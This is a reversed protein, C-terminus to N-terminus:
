IDNLRDTLYQNFTRDDISPYWREDFYPNPKEIYDNYLLEEFIQKPDDNYNEYYEDLIEESLNYDELDIQIKIKDSTFEFVNGLEGLAEKITDRLHEVYSDREAGNVASSIANRIDYNDDYEEIKDELSMDEDIEIGEKEIWNHIMEEIKKENGADVNYELASKWDVDYNDWMDWVDDSMITEYFSVRVSYDNGAPTKKKYTRYVRDGDLYNGVSTPELELVFRTQPPEVEIIGMEGLKRQLGRTSFLEPRNNYIERITQDPLDTLKFDQNSAYESGFGQILYDGAERVNFLPEIYKHYEEKPKSNKKGKLQYLIGDTGISATLHSQNIKMDTGQLKKDSRLSYLFGYTSRGCHGMRECEEESNKVNLDAWYYGEGNEDRFDILIPHTEVYNIAGDGVGLSDHWVKADRIVDAISTEKDYHSTIKNDLGGVSKPARNYDMISVLVPIIRQPHLENIKKKAANLVDTKTMGYNILNINNDYYMKLYKNAIWVSTKGCVRDFTEALEPKMGIKETLIKLREEQKDETLLGFKDNYEKLINIVDRDSYNENISKSKLKINLIKRLYFNFQNKDLDIIPYFWTPLDIQKKDLLTYFVEEVIYDDGDNDSNIEAQQFAQLVIDSNVNVLNTLDGEITITQNRENDEIYGYHQLTKFLKDKYKERASEIMTQTTADEIAFSIDEYVDYSEIMDNIYGEVFEKNEKKALIKLLEIIKNKNEDSIYETAEFWPIFDLIDIIFDNFNSYENNLLVKSLYVDIKTNYYINSNQQYVKTDNKILFHVRDYDFNIYYETDFDFTTTVGLEQLKKYDNVGSYLDPREKYLELFENDTLDTLKFDNGTAYEKGFYNIFYEGDDLKLQLLPIIYKHYESKPKSNNKGKLQFLIGDGDIAATLHSDNITYKKGPAYKYSRLSYLTGKSSKGCHSMRDCEDQSYDGRLDIWYYGIGNQRFDLGPIINKEKEKYNFKGSQKSWETALNKIDDFNLNELSKIKGGLEYVIYDKIKKYQEVLDEHELSINSLVSKITPYENPMLESYFKGIKNAMFIANSKFIGEFTKADDESMGFVKVLTDVSKAETILTGFKDNYEKLLRVISNEYYQEKLKM